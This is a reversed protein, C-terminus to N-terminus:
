CISVTSNVSCMMGIRKGPPRKHEILFPFDKVQISRVLARYTTVGCVYCIFDRCNYNRGNPDRDEPLHSLHYVAWQAILSHYCFVCALHSTDVKLKKPGSGVGKLMPFYPYLGLESSILIKQSTSFIQYTEGQQSYENCIVCNGSLHAHPGGLKSLFENIVQFIRENDISVSTTPPTSATIVQHGGPASLL